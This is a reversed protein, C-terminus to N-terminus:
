KQEVVIRNERQHKEDVRTKGANQVGNKLLSKKRGYKQEPKASIVTKSLHSAQVSENREWNKIIGDVAIKM